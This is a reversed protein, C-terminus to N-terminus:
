VGDLSPAQGRRALRHSARPISRRLSPRLYRRASRHGWPALTPSTM